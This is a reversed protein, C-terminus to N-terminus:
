NHFIPCIRQLKLHSDKFVLRNSEEELKWIYVYSDDGGSALMNSQPAFKACNVTKIHLNLTAVVELDISDKNNAVTKTRCESEITSDSREDTTVAHKVQARWIIVCNDGGASAIRYFSISPDFADTQVHAQVDVSFVPERNHWSIEPTFSRM